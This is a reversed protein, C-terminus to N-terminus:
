ATAKLTASHHGEYWGFSYLGALLGLAAFAKWYWPIM